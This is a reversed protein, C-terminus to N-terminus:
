GDLGSPRWEVFEVNGDDDWKVEFLVSTDFDPYPEPCAESHMDRGRCNPCPGYVITGEHKGPHNMQALCSFDEHLVTVDETDCFMFDRDTHSRGEVYVYDAEKCTCTSCHIGM